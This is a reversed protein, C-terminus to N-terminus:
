TSDQLEILTLSSSFLGNSVGGVVITHSEITQVTHNQGTECLLQEFTPRQGGFLKGNSVLFKGLIAFLYDTENRWFFLQFHFDLDLRSM